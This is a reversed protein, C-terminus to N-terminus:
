AKEELSSKNKKNTAIKIFAGISLSLASLTAFLVIQPTVAVGEPWWRSTFILFATAALIMCNFVIWSVLAKKLISM